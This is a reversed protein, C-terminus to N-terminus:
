QYKLWHILAAKDWDSLNTGYYHGKNEVYDACLIQGTAPDRSFIYTLPTGAPIVSGDPAPLDVPTVHVKPARDAM